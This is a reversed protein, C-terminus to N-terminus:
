PRRRAVAKEAVTEGADAVNLVPADSGPKAPLDRRRLRPAGPGGANPIQGDALLERLRRESYGSEAAAAAVTLPETAWAQIGRELDEACAEVAKAQPAAGYRRLQAAEERWEEALRELPTANM